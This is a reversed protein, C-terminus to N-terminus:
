NKEHEIFILNKSRRESFIYGGNNDVIIPTGSDSWDDFDGNGLPYILESLVEGPDSIFTIDVASGLEQILLEIHHDFITVMKQWVIKILPVLDAINEHDWDNKIFKILEMLEESSIRWKDNWSITM